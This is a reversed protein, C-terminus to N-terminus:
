IVEEQSGGREVAQVNAQAGKLQAAAQAAQSRVGTDDLQLLVQGRRVHDGEKVFVRRVTTNIPAHAEFNQAPEIKGNTSIVSRISSREVTAARVPIVDDRMSNFSAFLIIALVAGLTIVLWRHRAFFTSKDKDMLAM